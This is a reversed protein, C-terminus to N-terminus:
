VRSKLVFGLAKSTVVHAREFGLIAVIGALNGAVALLADPSIRREERAPPKLQYLKTLQDVMQAYEETEATFGKMESFINDIAEDLGSLEDPTKDSSM